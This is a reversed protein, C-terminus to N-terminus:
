QKGTSGFGCRNNEDLANTEIFHVKPQTRVIRFQCIRDNKHIVTDETALAPFMWVDNTGSYSNDIVGVSNTQIIHFSKYTSSRPSLHAEYGNPLRMSVGLNILKFEGSKLEVDEAARLDIWDGNPITKIKEIGNTHYVIKIKETEKWKEYPNLFIDAAIKGGIFLFMVSIITNSVAYLYHEMFVMELSVFFCIMSELTFFLLELIKLMRNM